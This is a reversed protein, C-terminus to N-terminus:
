SMSLHELQTSGKIVESLDATDDKAEALDESGKTKETWHVRRYYCSPRTSGDPGKTHCVGTLRPRVLFLLSNQECNVRVEVLDLVDGSTEGKIWLKNRSTSWLVCIKRRFSEVLAQENAYAVILVEMTDAHQVAVPVVPSECAAVKKLKYWDLLFQNGEELEFHAM